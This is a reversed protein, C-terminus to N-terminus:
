ALEDKVARRLVHPVAEEGVEVSDISDGAPRTLTYTFADRASRDRQRTEHQAFLRDISAQDHAYVVCEHGAKMARRVLNAGM